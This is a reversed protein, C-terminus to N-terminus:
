ILAKELEAPNRNSHDIEVVLVMLDEEEITYIIRYSWKLVRRYTILLNDVGRLLPNKQPMAALKRIETVIGIRVKEAIEESATQNLYDVISELSQDARATVVVQYTQGM